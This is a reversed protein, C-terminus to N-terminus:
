NDQLPGVGLIDNIAAIIEVNNVFFNTCKATDYGLREAAPLDVKIMTRRMLFNALTVVDAYDAQETQPIHRLDLQNTVVDILEEPFNWNQLLGFGIPASFTSILIELSEPEIEPHYRDAYLYLPLAGIEYVLGALMANEPKLHKEQQALVYSNAAVIRSRKWLEKLAGHILTSQAQFLKPLTINLVIGYLMRYGLRTIADHLNGAPCENFLTTNNTASILYLTIEPDTSLLKVFQDVSSKPNELLQKVKMAMDPLVPMELQGAKLAALLETFVVQLKANLPPTQPTIKLDQDVSVPIVAVM